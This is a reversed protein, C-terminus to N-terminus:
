VRQRWLSLWSFLVMSAGLLWSLWYRTMTGPLEGVVVARAGAPSGGRNHAFFAHVDGLESDANFDVLRGSVETQVFPGLKPFDVRSYELYLPAGVVERVEIPGYRLSSPRWQGIEAAKNGLVVSVTVPTGAPLSLLQNPESADGVDVMAPAFFHYRLEDATPVLLWAVAMTMAITMVYRIPAPGSTPRQGRHRRERREVFRKLEDDDLERAVSAPVNM